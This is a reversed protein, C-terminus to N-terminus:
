GAGLLLAPLDGLRRIREVGGPWAWAPDILVPRVGARRAGEVDIAVLDGVHVAEAPGCALADLAAAFIRPDPKECGVAGSDLVVDFHELLGASRLRDAVHGDSNSVCGLRLGAAALTRLTPVVDAAVACWLDPWIELVDRVLASPVEDAPAVGCGEAILRVYRDRVTTSERRSVEHLLPDLRPRARQEADTVAATGVGLGHSALVESIRAHDIGMLTNGVDFLVARLRPAGDDVSHASPAPM